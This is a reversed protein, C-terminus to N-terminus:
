ATLKKHKGAYKRGKGKAFLRYCHYRGANLIRDKLSLSLDIRQMFCQTYACPNDRILKHVQASYGDNQYECRMLIQPLVAVHCAQGVMDLMVGEPSFREGQFVPFPYERAISVSYAFVYEGTCHYRMGLDPIQLVDVGRPLHAGLLQNDLTAKYAVVGDVDPKREMVACLLEVANETMMDDSDLCVIWRGQAYELAMNYATHKGGNAKYYYRIPFKASKQFDKVMTETTDSSGDDIILWEFEHCTQKVLSYFVRSLMAARNYTPTFVTIKM